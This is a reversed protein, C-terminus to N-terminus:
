MGTRFSVPLSPIHLPLMYMLTPCVKKLSENGSYKQTLLDFNDYLSKLFEELNVSMIEREM